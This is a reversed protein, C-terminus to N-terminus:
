VNYADARVFLFALAYGCLSTSLTQNLFWGGHVRETRGVDVSFERLGVWVWM